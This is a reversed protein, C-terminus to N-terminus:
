FLARSLIGDRLHRPGSNRMGHWAAGARQGPTVDNSEGAHPCGCLAQSPQPCHAAKWLGIIPRPGQPRQRARPGLPWTPSHSRPAPASKGTQQGRRTRAATMSRLQGRHISYQPWCYGAAISRPESWIRQGHTSYYTLEAAPIVVAALADLLGLETLERTAHVPQRMSAAALGLQRSGPQPDSCGGPVRRRSSAQGGTASVAASSTAARAPM